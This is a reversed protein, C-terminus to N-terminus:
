LIRRQFTSSYLDIWLPATGSSAGGMTPILLYQASVEVAEASECWAFAKGALSASLTRMFRLHGEVNLFLAALKQLRFQTEHNTSEFEGKAVLQGHILCRYNIRTPAPVTPAFLRFHDSSRSIFSYIDLWHPMAAPNRARLWQPAGVKSAGFIVLSFHLLFFIIAVFKKIKM